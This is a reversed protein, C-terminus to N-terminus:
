GAINSLDLRDPDLEKQLRKRLLLLNTILDNNIDHNCQRVGNAQDPFDILSLVGVDQRAAVERRFGTM